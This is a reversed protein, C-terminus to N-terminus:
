SFAAYHVQAIHSRTSTCSVALQSTTTRIVYMYLTCTGPVTHVITTAYPVLELDIALRWFICMYFLVLTRRLSHTFQGIAIGTLPGFQSGECVLM